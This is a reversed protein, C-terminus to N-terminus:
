LRVRRQKPSAAEALTSKLLFTFRAHLAEYADDLALPIAGKVGIAIAIEDRCVGPDRTSHKSLFSVVRQSHLIGDTIARRWDDGSRIGGKDFWVRHGRQELDTKTRRVLEENADHGHSLFIRMPKVPKADPLQGHTPCVQFDGVKTADVQCRPCRM